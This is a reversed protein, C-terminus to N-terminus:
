YNNLIFLKIAWELGFRKAFDIAIFKGKRIRELKELYESRAEPDETIQSEMFFQVQKSMSIGNTKCFGSLKNYVIEDINFTKLAM